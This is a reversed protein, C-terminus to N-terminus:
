VECWIEVGGCHIGPGSLGTVLLGISCCDRSGGSAADGLDGAM